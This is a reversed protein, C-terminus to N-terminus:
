SLTRFGQYTRSNLFGRTLTVGYKGPIDPKPLTTLCAAKNQRSLKNRGFGASLKPQPANRHNHFLRKFTDASFGLQGGAIAGVPGSHQAREEGQQGHVRRHMRPTPLARAEARPPGREWPPPGELVSSGPQLPHGPSMIHTFVRTPVASTPQTLLFAARPPWASCLLVSGAPLPLHGLGQSSASKSKVHGPRTLVSPLHGPPGPPASPAQSPTAQYTPATGPGPKLSGASCRGPQPPSDKGSPVRTCSGAGCASVPASSGSWSAM